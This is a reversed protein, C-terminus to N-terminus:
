GGMLFRFINKIWDPLDQHFATSFVLVLISVPIYLEKIKEGIFKAAIALRCFFMTGAKLDEALSVLGHTNEAIMKTARTNALLDKKIEFIQRDQIDLRNNVANIESSPQRSDAPTTEQMTEQM